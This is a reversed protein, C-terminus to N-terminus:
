IYKTVWFIMNGIVKRCMIHLSVYKNKRHIFPLILVLYIYSMVSLTGFDAERGFEHGWIVYIFNVHATIKQYM